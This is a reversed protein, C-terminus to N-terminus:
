GLNFFGICIKLCEGFFFDCNNLLNILLNFGKCFWKVPFYSFNFYLEFIWIYLILFNRCVILKCKWRWYKEVFLLRISWFILLLFVSTPNPLIPWLMYHCFLHLIYTLLCPITDAIPDNPIITCHSLSLIFLYITGIGITERLYNLAEYFEWHIQLTTRDM